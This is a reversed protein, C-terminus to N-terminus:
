KKKRGDWITNAYTFLIVWAASMVCGVFPWVSGETDLCAVSLMFVIGSLYTIIRLITNKRM